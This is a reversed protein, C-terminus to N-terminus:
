YYYGTIMMAPRDTDRDAVEVVMRHEQPRPTRRDWRQPTAPTWRREDGFARRAFQTLERTSARRSSLTCTVAYVENGDVERSGEEIRLFWVGDNSVLDIESSWDELPENSGVPRRFELERAARIAKEFSRARGAYPLCVETLARAVLVDQAAVPAATLCFSAALGCAVFLKLKM